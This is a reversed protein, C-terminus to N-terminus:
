VLIKGPRHTLSTVEVERRQQSLIGVLVRNENIWDDPLNNQGLLTKNWTQIVLSRKVAKKNFKRKNTAVRDMTFQRNIIDLWRNQLRLKWILFAAEGMLIHYLCNTGKLTKNNKDKFRVLGCGLVTGLSLQPWIEHKKAWLEKCMEWLQQRPSIDCDILIHEMTELVQCKPCNALQLMQTNEWFKGIKYAQHLHTIYYLKAGNPVCLNELHLPEAESLPKNAGIAALKDAEENEIEGSHGKVWSMWTQGPRTRLQSTALHFFNANKVGIYGIDEWHKLHKTLGEMAYKSDTKIHINREHSAKQAAISIAMIEGTQNSQNSGPVRAATNQPHNEGFWIGAGATADLKGNKSCSGDTYITVNETLNNDLAEM